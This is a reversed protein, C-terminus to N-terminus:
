KREVVQPNFVNPIVNEESLEDEPIVSAIAHAAALKMEENIDSARVQLAGKFIAPFGLCNNVQNPFDSRGIAVIRAGAKKAEEPMIEPIPNAMAFVIFDHAISKVMEPTHDMCKCTAIFVDPCAKLFSSFDEVWSIPDSVIQNKELSPFKGPFPYDVTVQADQNGVEVFEAKNQDYIGGGVNLKYGGLTIAPKDFMSTSFASIKARRKKINEFREYMNSNVGKM